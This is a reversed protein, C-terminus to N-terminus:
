LARFVSDVTKAYVIYIYIYIYVKMIKSIAFVSDLFQKM